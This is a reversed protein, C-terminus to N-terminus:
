HVNRITKKKLVIKIQRINKKNKEKYNKNFVVMVFNYPDKLIQITKDLKKTKKRIDLKKTQPFVHRINKSPNYSVM